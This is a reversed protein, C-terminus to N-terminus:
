EDFCIPQSIIVIVVAIVIVSVSDSVSVSDRTRALHVLQWLPLPLLRLMSLKDIQNGCVNQM